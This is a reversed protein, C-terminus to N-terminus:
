HRQRVLVPADDVVRAKADLSPAHAVPVQLDAVREDVVVASVQARDVGIGDSVFEDPEENVTAFNHRLPKYLTPWFYKYMKLM